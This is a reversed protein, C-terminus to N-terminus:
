GQYGERWKATMEPILDLPDRLGADTVVVADDNFFPVIMGLTTPQAANMEPQDRGPEMKGPAGTQELSKSSNAAGRWHMGAQPTM